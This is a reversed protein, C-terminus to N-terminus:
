GINRFSARWSTLGKLWRLSQVLASAHGLLSHCFPRVSATLPRCKKGVCPTLNMRVNGSGITGSCIGLSIIILSNKPVRRGRLIEGTQRVERVMMPVPPYLRLTERFVDRMFLLNRMAAFNESGTLHFAEQAM